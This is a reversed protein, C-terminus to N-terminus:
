AILGRDRYHRRARRDARIEKKMASLTIGVRRRNYGPSDAKYIKKVLHPM